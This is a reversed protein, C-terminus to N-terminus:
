ILTLNTGETLEAFSYALNQEYVRSIFRLFTLNCGPSVALYPYSMPKNEFLVILVTFIEYPLATKGM